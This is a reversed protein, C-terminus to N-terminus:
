QDVKNNENIGHNGGGNRQLNNKKIYDLLGRCGEVVDNYTTEFDGSYWPDAIDRSSGAFELLKYVKKEPDSGIIRMINRINNTDMVILYDYESYESKMMQRAYHEICPVGKERLISKTGYHVGNGIEERSTAASDVHFSSSLGEKVIMDWMVSQTMTSRCINGHCIFLIHIM